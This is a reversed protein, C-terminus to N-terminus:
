FVGASRAAIFLLGWVALMVVIVILLMRRLRADQDLVTGARGMECVRTEVRRAAGAFRSVRDLDVSGDNNTPTSTPLTRADTTPHQMDTM